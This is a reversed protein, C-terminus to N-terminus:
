EWEREHNMWEFGKGDRRINGMLEWRKSKRIAERYKGDRETM